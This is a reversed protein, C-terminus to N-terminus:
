EPWKVSRYLPQHLPKIHILPLWLTGYDNKSSLFHCVANGLVGREWKWSLSFLVLALTICCCTVLITLTLEHDLYWPVFVITFSSSDSQSPLTALPSPTAAPHSRTPTSWRSVFCFLSSLHLYGMGGSFDSKTQGKKKLGVSARSTHITYKELFATIMMSSTSPMPRNGQFYWPCRKQSHSNSSVNATSRNM